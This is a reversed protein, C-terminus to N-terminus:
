KIKEIIFRPRAKVEIYTKGVYEGIIGLAILQVGGLGLVADLVFLWGFVVYKFITIAIILGCLLVLAVFVTSVGCLFVLRIPKISFSTIGDVAFNLMKRLPYKSEGAFREAREYEVTATNFGLTPIIGRLFLNIERYNALEELARQSLLRYDAHNYVTNTGLFNMLRYFALATNRKFFSDTKRSSRVGYIVEAGAKFKTIFADIAEISDQLDADMSIAADCYDKAYLLGAMLANQHGCNRSLKIGVVRKDSQEIQEWTDDKSGDDIFVVKSKESIEKKRVLESLKQELRHKTEQLCDSENYCPIVFYIIPAKM